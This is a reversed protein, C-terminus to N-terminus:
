GTASQKGRQENKDESKSVVMANTNMQCKGNFVAGNEVVLKQTTINGSIIASRRLFLIETCTVEGEVKGSIEAEVSTINGKIVSVEGIVVRGKSYITGDVSGEIRINGLAQIDGTIRTEKSIVNSTDTQEVAITRKEEIKESKNFM